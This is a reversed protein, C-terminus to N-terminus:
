LPVGRQYSNCMLLTRLLSGPNYWGSNGLPLLGFKMLCKAILQSCFMTGDDSYGFWSLYKLVRSGSWLAGAMGYGTGILKRLMLTLLQSQSSTLSNLPALRFLKARGDYDEIRMSPWQVQVGDILQGTHLCYHPSMTTSEVLVMERSITGDSRTVDWEAIIGVHSPGFTAFEIIRSRWDRGYFAIIDGPQLEYRLMPNAPPM